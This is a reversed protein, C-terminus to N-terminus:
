IMSFVTVNEHLAGVIQINVNKDIHAARKCLEYKLLWMYFNRFIQLLCQTCM